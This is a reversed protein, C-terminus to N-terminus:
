QNFVSVIKTILVMIFGSCHLDTQFTKIMTKIVMITETKMWDTNIILKKLNSIIDVLHEIDIEISFEWLSVM